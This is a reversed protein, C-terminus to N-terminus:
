YLARWFGRSPGTAAAYLGIFKEQTATAVAAANLVASIPTKGMGRSESLAAGIALTHLQALDRASREAYSAPIINHVLSSGVANGRADPSAALVSKLLAKANAELDIGM